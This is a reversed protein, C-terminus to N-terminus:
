PGHREVAALGRGDAALHLTWFAGKALALPQPVAAASLRALAERMLDGVLEGHTCVLVPRREAVLAAVVARAGERDFSGVHPGAGATLAQETHVRASTRVAYPLVTEVCRATASSVVQGIGYGALAEALRAADARGAEDLPRLLDDGNWGDKGGASAHRLLVVPVTEAPGAAFDDLTRVDHGYSLRRRAAALPLWERRDVEDSLPVGSPGSVAAAWWAVEKPWGDKVYRRGPLRRGLVPRLGTEEAVERVAATLPHEENRLKGKPLTWDDRGPRHVLLVEPGAGSPRWLVAGAARTPELHGGVAAPGPADPREPPEAGSTSSPPAGGPRGTM